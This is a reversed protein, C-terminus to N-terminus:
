YYKVEAKWNEDVPDYFLNMNVIVNDTSSASIWPMLMGFILEDRDRNEFLQTKM